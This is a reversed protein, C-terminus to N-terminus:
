KEDLMAAIVKDTVGAQKLALLDDPGVAFNAAQSGIMKVVIDGSLGGKM